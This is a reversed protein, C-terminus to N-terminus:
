RHVPQVVLPQDPAAVDCILRRHLGRGTVAERRLADPAARREGLALAPGLRPMRDKGVFPRSAARGNTGPKGVLIEIRVAARAGPQYRDGGIGSTNPKLSTGPFRRAVGRTRLNIGTRRDEDLPTGRRFAQKAAIRDLRHSPNVGFRAGDLKRAPKPLITNMFKLNHAAATAATTTRDAGDVCACPKM